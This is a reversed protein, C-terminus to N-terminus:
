ASGVAVGVGAETEEVLEAAAAESGVGEIDAANEVSEAMGFAKSFGVVAKKGENGGM